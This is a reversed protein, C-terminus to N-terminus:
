IFKEQIRPLIVREAFLKYGEESPHFNDADLLKASKAFEYLCKKDNDAFIWKSFDIKSLLSKSAHPPINFDMDAVPNLDDGWYDVYSMFYYHYGHNELFTQANYIDLLTNDAFTSNDQSKYIPKLIPKLFPDESWTGVAGGSFVYNQGHARHKHPYDLCDYFEDSVTLDVRSVGSWMVMVLTESPVYDLNLLGHILSKSIYDNGAASCALNEHNFPGFKNIIPLTWGGIPTQTFSCGNAVFNKIM